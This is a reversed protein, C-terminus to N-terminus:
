VKVKTGKDLNIDIRLRKWKIGRNEGRQYIKGQDEKRKKGSTRSKNEWGINLDSSDLKSEAFYDNLIIKGKETENYSWLYLFM